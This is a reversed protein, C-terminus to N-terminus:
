KNNEKKGFRNKLSNWWGGVVERILQLLLLLGIIGIVALCIIDDLGLVVIAFIMQEEGKL